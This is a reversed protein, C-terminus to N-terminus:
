MLIRLRGNKKSIINLNVQNEERRRKLIESLHNRFFVGGLGFNRTFPFHNIENRRLM